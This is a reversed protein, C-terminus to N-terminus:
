KPVHHAVTQLVNMIMALWTALALPPALPIIRRRSRRAALDENRRSSASAPQPAVYRRRTANIGRRLASATLTALIGIVIFGVSLFLVLLTQDFGLWAGLAGMLKADGGGGSGALWIVFLIGFGVLFGLGADLLGPWGHFALHFVLGSVFSPVTLANPIRRTRVDWFVALSTLLGVAFLFLLMEFTLHPM